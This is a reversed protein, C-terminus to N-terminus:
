MWYIDKGRKGSVNPQPVSGHFVEEEVHNANNDDIFDSDWDDMNTQM